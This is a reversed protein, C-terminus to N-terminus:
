AARRGARRRAYGALALGGLGLTVLGSPEPVTAPLITATYVGLTGDDLLAYFALRNGSLQNTALGLSLPNIGQGDLRTNADLVKILSGGFTVYFGPTGAGDYGLFAVNGGDTSVGPGFGSFTGVGGPVPTDTDVLASLVGAEWTYIGTPGDRGDEGFFVVTGGDVSPDGFEVFTGTGGPVPTDTDAVVTLVGGSELYIGARSTMAAEERSGFFAVDPGDISAGSLNQFAGAGGPQPTDTDAVRVVAGGATRYVGPRGGAGTAGFAVGVGDTDPLGQLGGFGTFTGSGGPVPTSLDAVRVLAGGIDTYVGQQGGAGAGLFAVRGRGVSPPTFDAFNGTGGPIPTRTDYLVGLAGPGGAYIGLDTRGAAYFVVRPGIAPFTFFDFTGTGGPIPTRTDAVTEFLIPGAGAPGAALVLAITAPVSRRM